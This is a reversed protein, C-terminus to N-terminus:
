KNRETEIRLEVTVRETGKYNEDAGSFLMSVFSFLLYFVVFFM